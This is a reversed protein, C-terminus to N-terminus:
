KARYKKHVYVISVVLFAMLGMAFYIIFFTSLLEFGFLLLFVIIIISLLMLTNGILAAAQQPDTYKADDWGSILYRHQKVSIYYGAVACPLVAFLFIFFIFFTSESM